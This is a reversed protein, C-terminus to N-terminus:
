FSNRLKLLRPCTFKVPTFSNSAIMTEYPEVGVNVGSREYM